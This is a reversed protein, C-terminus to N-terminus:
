CPKLAGHRSEMAVTMLGRAAMRRVDGESRGTIHAVESLRLGHWLTLQLIERMSSDLGDLRVDSMAQDSGNIGALRPDHVRPDGLSGVSTTSFLGPGEVPAYDPDLAGSRRDKRHQHMVIERAIRFIWARLSGQDNGKGNGQGIGVEGAQKGGTHSLDNAAAQLVQNYVGLAQHGGVLRACYAYIEDQYTELLLELARRIDGSKLAAFIGLDQMSSTQPVPSVSRFTRPRGSDRLGTKFRVSDAVAKALGIKERVDVYVSPASM